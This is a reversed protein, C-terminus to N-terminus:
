LNISSSSGCRHPIGCSEGRVTDLIHLAHKLQREIDLRKQKECNAMTENQAMTHDVHYEIASALNDIEDNCESVLEEDLCERLLEGINKM